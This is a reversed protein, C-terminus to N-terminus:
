MIKSLFGANLHHLQNTEMAEHPHVLQDDNNFQDVIHLTMVQEGYRAAELLAGVAGWLRAQVVDTLPPALYANGDAVVVIVAMIVTASQSPGPRVRRRKHVVYMSSGTDEEKPAVVVFEVGSTMQELQRAIADASLPTPNNNAHRQQMKLMDNTSSRDWFPSLALYDLVTDRNLPFAQLWAVDRFCIHLLSMIIIIIIDVLAM